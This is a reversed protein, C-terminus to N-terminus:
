SAGMAQSGYLFSVGPASVSLLSELRSRRWSHSAKEVSWEPLPFGDIEEMGAKRLAAAYFDPIAHHHTDTLMDM